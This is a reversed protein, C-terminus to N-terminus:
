SGAERLDAVHLDVYERDLYYGRKVRVALDVRRGQLVAADIGRASWNFLIADGPNRHEDRIHLKLHGNGVIRTKPLVEVNPVRWVPTRNGFGFPECRALFDMLELNSEDLGLTTDIKLRPQKPMDATLESIHQTLEDAFAGVNGADISFGVAQAHGGFRTLYRACQDLQEKLHVGPISRGSGKGSGSALSILLAPRGFDEVVRSAAIGLVGEDWDNGALVFAGRKEWDPSSTIAAFAEDTVKQTLQRRHENQAELQNALRASTGIDTETLLQLAPKPNAVRGAANLRPALTFGVHTATIEPADLGAAAKLAKIGTRGNTNLLRLGERVFRRNEDKLPAMDAVTALACLDVLNDADTGGRVGRAELAKVLKYAVGAGCLGRFPYSEGPRVPNLLTGRVEGESPMEHHDCVIVDIGADELRKIREGDSTGCDVAIFLGIKNELAWDIARDAVGYGDKRRDPVFRYVDPVTGNLFEYLLATGSIGDVDYDGHVMITAKREIAHRVTAVAKEMNEFLFPDHVPIADGDLYVAGAEPTTIDRSALFRAASKPIDLTRSLNRVTDPDAADHEVWFFRNLPAAM